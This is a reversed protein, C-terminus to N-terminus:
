FAVDVAESGSASVVVTDLLGHTTQALAAAREARVRSPFRHNGIDLHPAQEVLVRVVEENCHGLNFTGGNIHVDILEHGDLDWIRYGERRGIVLDVGLMGLMDVRNPCVHERSLELVRSKDM